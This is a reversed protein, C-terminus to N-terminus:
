STIHCSAQTKSVTQKKAPNRLAAYGQGQHKWQTGQKKVKSHDMEVKNRARKITPFFEEKKSYNLLTKRDIGLYYALGSMTYPEPSIYAFQENTKNDYGNILRNDCYNFYENIKDEVEKVTKFLLPRGVKNPM